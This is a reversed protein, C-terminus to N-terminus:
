WNASRNFLVSIRIRNKNRMSRKRRRMWHQYMCNPSLEAVGNERGKGMM